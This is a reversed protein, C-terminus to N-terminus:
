ILSFMGILLSPALKRSLMLLTPHQLWKSLVLLTSRSFALNNTSEMGVHVWVASGCVYLEVLRKSSDSRWWSFSCSTLKLGPCLALAQAQSSLM